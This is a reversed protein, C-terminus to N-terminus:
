GGARQLYHRVLAKAPPSDWEAPGTLSGVVRGRADVLFTSPLGSVGLKGALAGGPDIAIRMHRIGLEELFPAIRERSARDESVGLVVLGEGALDAALRELSPMERRCPACWTAWFNVLVVQGRHAALSTTGGDLRELRAEPAPVPSELLTFNEGFTGELPPREAAAAGGAALALTGLAAALAARRLAALAGSPKEQAM